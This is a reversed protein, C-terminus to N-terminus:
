MAMPEQALGLTGAIARLGLDAGFDLMHEQHDLPDKSPGFDPVTPQRLIGVPQEDAAAQRIQVYSAPAQPRFGLSRRHSSPQPRGSPPHGGGVSGSWRLGM